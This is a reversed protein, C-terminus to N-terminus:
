APAAAPTPTVVVLTRQALHENLLFPILACVASAISAGTGDHWYVYDDYSLTMVSLRLWNVPFTLAAVILFYFALHRDFRMKRTLSFILFACVGFQIQAITCCPEYIAVAHSSGIIGLVEGHVENAYGTAALLGHAAWVDLCICVDALYTSIFHSPVGQLSVLLLSACLPWLSRARAFRAALWLCPIIHIHSAPDIFATASLTLIATVFRESRRVAVKSYDSRAALALIFIWEVLALFNFNALDSFAPTNGHAAKFAIRWADMLFAYFVLASFSILKAAWRRAVARMASARAEYVSVLDFETAASM